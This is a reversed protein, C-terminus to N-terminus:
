LKFTQIKHYFVPVYEDDRPRNILIDRRTVEPMGFYLFLIICLDFDLKVFDAHRRFNKFCFSCVSFINRLSHHNILKLRKVHSLQQIVAEDFAKFVGDVDDNDEAFKIINALADILINIHYFVKADLGDEYKMLNGGTEILKSMYKIVGDDATLKSFADNLSKVFMEDTILFSFM